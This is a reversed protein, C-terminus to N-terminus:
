SNGLCLKLDANGQCATLATAQERAAVEQSSLSPDRASIAARLAAPTCSAAVVSDVDAVRPHADAYDLANRCGEESPIKAITSPPAQAHSTTADQPSGSCAALLLAIGVLALVKPCGAVRSRYCPPAAAGTISARTASLPLAGQKAGVRPSARNEM